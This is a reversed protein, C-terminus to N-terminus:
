FHGVYGVSGEVESVFPASEWDTSLKFLTSGRAGLYFSHSANRGVQVFQIDRYGEPVEEALLARVAERHEDKRYEAPDTSGAEFMLAATTVLELAQSETM